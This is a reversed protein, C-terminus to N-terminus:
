TVAKDSCQVSSPLCRRLEWVQQMIGQKAIIVLPEAYCHGVCGVQTVIADIKRQALEQEVTKLADLADAAQGCTVTGILIRLRKGDTVAKRESLARNHIEQFVAASRSRPNTTV